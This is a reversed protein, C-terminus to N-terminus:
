LIDIIQGNFIKAMRDCNLTIDGGAKFSSIEGVTLNKKFFNLLELKREEMESIITKVVPYDERTHLSVGVEHLIGKSFKFFSLKVCRKCIDNYKKLEMLFLLGASHCYDTIIIEVYIGSEVMEIIKRALIYAASVYGGETSMYIMCRPEQSGYLGSLELDEIFLSINESDLKKDYIFTRIM